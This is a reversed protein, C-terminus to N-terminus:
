HNLSVTAGLSLLGAECHFFFGKTGFYYLGNKCEDYLDFRMSKEGHYDTQCM